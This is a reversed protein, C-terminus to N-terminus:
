KGHKKKKKTEKWAKIQDRSKPYNIIISIISAAAGLSFTIWARIESPQSNSAVMCFIGGLWMIVGLPGSGDSDHHTAMSKM